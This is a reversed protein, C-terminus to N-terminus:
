KNQMSTLSLRVFSEFDSKESQTASTATVNADANAQEDITNTEFSIDGFSDDQENDENEDTASQNSKKRKKPRKKNAM